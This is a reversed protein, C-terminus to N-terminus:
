FGIVGFRVLAFFVLAAVGIGAAYMVARLIVRRRHGPPVVTGQVPSRRVYGDPAVFPRDEMRRGKQVDEPSLIYVGEDVNRRVPVAKKATGALLRNAWGTISTERRVSAAANSALNRATSKTQNAVTELTKLSMREEEDEATWVSRM